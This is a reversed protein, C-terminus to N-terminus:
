NEVAARIYSAEETSFGYFDFLLDDIEEQRSRHCGCLSDIQYTLGVVQSVLEPGADPIPMKELHRRLVKVADFEKQFVFQALASNLVALVFRIPLKLRPILVNASNLTVFGQTDLAVCLKKSIFRYVLKEEARYMTTPACQQFDSPEFHLFVQSEKLRYPEIDRGRVVPETGPLPEKHLFAKNNGTVIGVAWDAHGKLYLNKGELIKNLLERDTASKRISFRFDPSASFASQPLNLRESDSCVEVHHESEPSKKCLDLRIVETIISQFPRGCLSIRQIQHKVLERRIDRHQRVQLISAPLLYSLTGGDELHELGHMVFYSFSEGSSIEPFQQSYSHVDETAFHAGWPPNSCVLDFDDPWDSEPGHMLADGCVVRPMGYTADELEFLLNIRACLVALADKDCGWLLRPWEKIGLAKMRRAVGVLYAGSGCCPDYVKLPGDVLTDCVDNVLIEPTYFAGKSSKEGDWSSQQYAIGLLECDFCDSFMQRLDSLLQLDLHASEEELLSFFLADVPLDPHLAMREEKRLYKAIGLHLLFERQKLGQRIKEDLFGRLNEDWKNKCLEVHNRSTPKYRKNARRQLRPIKGALIDAKLQVVPALEYLFRQGEKKGELLSARRWNHVTHTSIGLLQAVEKTTIWPNRCSPVTPDSEKSLTM